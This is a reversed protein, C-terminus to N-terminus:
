GELNSDMDSNNVSNDLSNKRITFSVKTGREKESVINFSINDGYYLRLRRYVNRLGINSSLEEESTVNTILEKLRENDMGTGNDEVCIKLTDDILEANIRVIGVETIAQIGHKCANEVLPQLSMKPIKVELLSDDIDIYYEIKDGFRFKEIKLYMETFSIEERITVLDDKWSLLRRLTKSLYKLIDIIDTYGNKTSVVLIANLTNFLFHPDMQSQLFNIEARIRELELDKKQLQLKYVDNILLNIKSAMLNFSRIVGGIEDQGENIEILEFKGDTFRSMHKSLKKLRYNYSNAMILSLISSIIVSIFAILLVFKLTEILSKQIREATSVGILRWGKMYSSNSLATELIINDKGISQIDFTKLSDEKEFDYLSSTSCIINNEPDLLYLNLFTKERKFINNLKQMNIDIKLIKRRENNLTPYYDLKNFVSLYQIRKTPLSKTYGLYSNLLVSGKSSYLKNYWLSNEVEEDIHQYTGGSSITPNDVYIEINSMYDYASTYINLRNRLQSDYVDFYQDSSLFNIDLINHLTRDSSISHSAAICGDFMTVIDVRTRELSIKYTNEEKEQVINSFKDVFSINIVIIPILLCVIYIILFKFKLPIDNVIYIFKRNTFM